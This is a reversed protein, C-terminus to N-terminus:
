RGALWPTTATSCQATRRSRQQWLANKRGLDIPTYSRVEPVPRGHDTIVLPEGSAEIQRFLELAHAKFQSKSVRQPQLPGTAAPFPRNEM